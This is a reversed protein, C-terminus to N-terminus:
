GYPKANSLNAIFQEAVSRVTPNNSFDPQTQFFQGLMGKEYVPIHLPNEPPLPEFPQWKRAVCIVHIGHTRMAAVAGSKEALLVPTTFLGFWHETFLKSLQTDGLEGLISASLGAQEWDNVVNQQESGNRGVVVLKLKKHIQTAYDAAEAAFAKIPAGYHIGGFLVVSLDQLQTYDQKMKQRIHYPDAVPINSFLPLKQAIDTLKKLEYLYLACHTHVMVPNLKRILGKILRRQAMGWFQHKAPSQRDMGIWLEHFMIHWKQDKGLRKLIGSLQYPLGKPHFSFAVFQLSMFDPDISYIFSSAKALKEKASLNVPLRLELPEGKDPPTPSLLTYAIFPDYLALVGIQHGSKILEKSLKRVYDGVGDKGPELSGCVFIIKM